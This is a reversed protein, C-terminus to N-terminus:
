LKRLKEKLETVAPVAMPDLGHGLGLYVSAFDPAAVLSALRELASGGEATLVGVDIGRREAIEQVVQARRDSVPATGTEEDALGGDCLLVVKLRAPAGRGGEDGPDAFINRDAEALAGFVGDLLGVRGRGAEGLADTVVPYRANASLMDGYRLAAVHSLPSDGWIVPISGALNLALTKARNVFSEATPRCRDAELDLRAATEALDAENVKVLGLTRAALLVPVTLGWLNARAPGRRPIPVFYARNREATAQLPSDPSGIAVLRAGRRGAAEAIALAEPSRGSASVAIVVDAAGIWGPVEGGRHALVPVPCRPGAVTALIDGTRAATGAGAVIMARPRGEDALGTLDTEATLAAAERVQAGASAIARLMGGADRASLAPADDLLEHDFSRNGRVGATGDVGAAM